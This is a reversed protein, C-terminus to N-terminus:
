ARDRQPLRGLALRVLAVLGDARMAQPLNSIQIPYGYRVPLRLMHISQWAPRVNFNGWIFVSTVPDGNLRLIKSVSAIITAVDFLDHRTEYVGLIKGLTLEM